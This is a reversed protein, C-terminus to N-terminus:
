TARLIAEDKSRNVLVPVDHTVYVLVTKHYTAVAFHYQNIAVGKLNVGIACQM